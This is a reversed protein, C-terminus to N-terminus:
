ESTRTRRVEKNVENRVHLNHKRIDELEKASPSKEKELRLNYPETKILKEDVHNVKPVKSSCSSSSSGSSSSSCGSSSNEASTCKVKTASNECNGDAIETSSTEKSEIKIETKNPVSSNTSIYNSLSSSESSSLCKKSAVAEINNPLDAAIIDDDSSIDVDYVGSGISIDGNVLKQEPISASNVLASPTTVASMPVTSNGNAKISSSLPPPPMPPSAPYKIEESWPIPSSPPTNFPSSTPRKITVEKPIPGPKRKRSSNPGGNPNLNGVDSLSFSRKLGRTTSSASGLIDIDAEDVMM